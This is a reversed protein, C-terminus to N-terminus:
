SDGQGTEDQHASLWQEIRGRWDPAAGGTQRFAVAFTGSGVRLRAAVESVRLRRAMSRWTDRWRPQELEVALDLPLGGAAAIIDETTCGFLGALVRAQDVTAPQKGQVIKMVTPQPLALAAVVSRLGVRGAAAKLDVAAPAQTPVLPAAVLVDLDDTLSARITASGDYPDTIPRGRRAGAPPERLTGGAADTCWSTIEPSWRDIVRSLTGTPVSTAQGAWATVEVAFVTRDAAVVLSHDDEGTPEVSVPVVRWRRGEVAVLLVLRSVDDWEARWVQGAAPEVDGPDGFRDRLGATTLARPVQVSAALRRLRDPLDATM